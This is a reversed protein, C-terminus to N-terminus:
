LLIELQEYVKYMKPFQIAIWDVVTEQVGWKKTEFNEQLGCEDFFAHVIEHRLLKKYYWDPNNLEMEKCDKMIVISKTSRDCYGNCDKLLSDETEAKRSITYETGLINVSVGNWTEDTILKDTKTIIDIM